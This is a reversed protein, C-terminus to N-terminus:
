NINAPLFANKITDNEKNFLNIILKFKNEIFLLFHLGFGSIQLYFYLLFDSLCKLCIWFQNSFGEQYNIQKIGKKQVM